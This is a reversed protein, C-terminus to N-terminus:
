VAPLLGAAYALQQLPFNKESYLEFGAKRLLSAFIGMGPILKGTFSGDYIEGIGCSPSKSKLIALSAGSKLAYVLAEQAGRMFADTVDNGNKCIVRDGNQECPLRPVPLGSLTEPCVTLCLGQNFLAVIVPHPKSGGDYRCFHGALCASVLIPKM